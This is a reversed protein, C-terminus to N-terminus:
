LSYYKQFEIPHPVMSVEQAEVKKMHIYASIVDESFVGGALLFAHDNELSMVAEELSKAVLPIGGAEEDSIHYLDQDRPDGPSIKNIIGDIGAMLMASFALYSNATPDPFRVEIRKASASTSYPIRVAASRNKASYALNVPAEYGPVLRKYSNTTPNTFANIAKAHKIIGGIYYLATESLQSYGDQDFFTSKGKNWLSQHVHMGSGNDQYIPKPMFTVSKGFSAAVNRVVYKFKQVNDASQILTDHVFGIENQGAGVEHHHLLPKIGVSELTNCMEARLDFSSDVPQVPFYGGKLEPRHALNNRDKLKKPNNYPNEESDLHYSSAYPSVEFRVDDFVFFELEPGFYVEDAFNQARLYSEAKHAISRPDRLYHYGDNPDIVDCIFCACPELTFPDMFMSEVDPKLLTDSHQIEKWSRISSGDFSIKNHFTDSDLQNAAYTIRHLKGLLDTFLFSVYKINNEKLARLVDPKTTM